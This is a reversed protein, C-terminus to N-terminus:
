FSTPQTAQLGAMYVNGSTDVCINYPIFRSANYLKGFSADFTWLANGDVDFCRTTPGGVGVTSTPLDGCTYINDDGDVAVGYTPGGHAASWVLTGTNDYVWITPNAGYINRTGVVVVSGNSLFAVDNLQGEFTVGWDLFGTAKNVVRLTHVGFDEFSGATAVQTANIAIASDSVSGQNKGGNPDAGVPYNWLSAGSSDFARIRFHGSTPLTIAYVNDSADIAGDVYRSQGGGLDGLSKEWLLSGDTDRFRLTSNALNTPFTAIKGSSGVAVYCVGTSAESISWELGSDDATIRRVQQSKFTNVAGGIYLSSQDAVLKIRNVSIGCHDALWEVNQSADLKMHTFSRLQRVNFEWPSLCCQCPAPDTM